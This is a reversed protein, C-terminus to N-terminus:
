HVQLEIPLDAQVGANNVLGVLPLNPNKDVVSSVAAAISERSTVDIFIARIGPYLSELRDADAQKRVGAFVTFSSTAALTSAAHEGIGSSAGTVVIAGTTHVNFHVAFFMNALLSALILILVSMLIICIPLVVAQLVVQIIVQQRSRVQFVM